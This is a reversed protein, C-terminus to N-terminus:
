LMARLATQFTCGGAVGNTKTYDNVTPVAYMGPKAKANGGYNSVQTLQAAFAAAGLSLTTAITQFHM